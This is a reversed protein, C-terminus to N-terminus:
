VVPTGLTAYDGGFAGILAATCYQIRSVTSPPTICTCIHSFTIANEDTTAGLRTGDVFEVDVGMDRHVFYLSNLPITSTTGSCLDPFGVTTGATPSNTLADYATDCTTGPCSQGMAFRDFHVIGARVDLQNTQIQYPLRPLGGDESVGSAAQMTHGYKYVTQGTTGLPVYDDQVLPVNNHLDMGYIGGTDSACTMCSDTYGDPMIDVNGTGLFVAGAAIRIDGSSTDCQACLMGTVPDRLALDSYSASKSQKDIHHMQHVTLGVYVSAVAVIAVSMLLIAARYANGVDEGYVGAGPPIISTAEDAKGGSQKSSPFRSARKANHTVGVHEDFYDDRENRLSGTASAFVRQEARSGM